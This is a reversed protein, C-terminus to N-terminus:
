IELRNIVQSGDAEIQAASGLRKRYLEAVGELVRITKRANPIFTQRREYFFRQVSKIMDEGPRQDVIKRLGDRDRSQLLQVSDGLDFEYLADNEIVYNTPEYSDGTGIHIRALPTIL